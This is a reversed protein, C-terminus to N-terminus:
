TPSNLLDYVTELFPKVHLPKNLTANFSGANMYFPTGSIGLVPITKQTSHQIHKVVSNGSVVPMCIDTIVLDFRGNNFKEIGEQGDAASEVRYGARSLVERMFNLILSEDEIILIYAM